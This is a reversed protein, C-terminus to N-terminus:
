IALLEHCGEALDAPKAMCPAAGGCAMGVTIRFARVRRGHDPGKRSPLKCRTFFKAYKIRRITRLVFRTGGLLCHVGGVGAIVQQVITAKTNILIVTYLNFM